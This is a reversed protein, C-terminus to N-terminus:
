SKLHIVDAKDRSSTNRPSTSQSRVNLGKATVELAARASNKRDMELSGLREGPSSAKIESKRNSGYDQEKQQARCKARMEEISQLTTFEKGAIMETVLNQKDREKRLGSVTMGGFPFAIEVAQELRLPTDLRAEQGNSLAPKPGKARKAPRGVKMAAARIKDYAEMSVGLFQAREERSMHQIIPM